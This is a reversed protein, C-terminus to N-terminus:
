KLGACSWFLASIHRMTAPREANHEMFRSVLDSLMAHTLVGDNARHGLKALAWLIVQQVPPAPKPLTKLAFSTLAHLAPLPLCRCPLCCTWGLLLPLLPRPRLLPLPVEGGRRGHAPRGSVRGGQGAAPAAARRCSTPLSSHPSRLLPPASLAAPLRCCCAAAPGLSDARTRCPRAPLAGSPPLQMRAAGFLFLPTSSFNFSDAQQRVAADVSEWLRETVLSGIQLAGMAWVATVLQRNTATKIKWEFQDLIATLAADDAPVLALSLHSRRRPM